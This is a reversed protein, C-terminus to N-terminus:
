LFKNIVFDLSKLRVIATQKITSTSLGTSPLCAYVYVHVYAATSLVYLSMCVATVM